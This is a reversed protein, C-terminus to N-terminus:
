RDRPGPAVDAEWVLLPPGPDTVRWGMRRPVAASRENGPDMRILVRQFGRDRAFAAIETAAATALGRGTAAPHLWYGVYATRNPDDPLRHLGAGGVLRGGDDVIAWGWQEGAEHARRAETLWSRRWEVDDPDQDAWPMWPRLHGRSEAVAALLEEADDVRWPRLAM